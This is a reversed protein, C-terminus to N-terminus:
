THFVDSNPQSIRRYWLKNELSFANCAFSLLRSSPLIPSPFIYLPFLQGVKLGKVIMKESVQDQVVCGFRSFISIM